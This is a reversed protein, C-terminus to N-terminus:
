MTYVYTLASVYWDGNHTQNKFLKSFKELPLHRLRVRLATWRGCTNVDEKFVQLKKKNYIVSGTYANMMEKLLPQNNYRAYNLEEDPMMGYSDFFEVQTRSEDTYFLCIWHGFNRKLEYLLVVAGKEGLLDELSSYQGLNHYVVIDCENNTINLIDKESLDVKEANSILSDM